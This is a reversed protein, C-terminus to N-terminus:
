WASFFLFLGVSCGIMGVAACALSSDTVACSIVAALGTALWVLEGGRRSAMRARAACHPHVALLSETANGEQDFHHVVHLILAEGNGLADGCWGCKTWHTLAMQAREADDASRRFACRDWPNCLDGMFPEPRGHSSPRPQGRAPACGEVGLGEAFLVYPLGRRRGEKGTKQGYRETM